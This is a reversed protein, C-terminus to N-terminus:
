LAFWLGKFPLVSCPKPGLFQARSGGWGHLRSNGQVAPQRLDLSKVGREQYAEATLKVCTLTM